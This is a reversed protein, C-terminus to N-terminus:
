VDHEILLLTKQKQLPLAQEASKLFWHEGTKKISNARLVHLPKKDKMIATEMLVKFGSDISMRVWCGEPLILGLGPPVQLDFQHVIRGKLTTSKYYEGPWFLFPMLFDFLTISLGELFPNLWESSPVSIAKGETIKAELFSKKLSLPQRYFDKELPFAELLQLAIPEPGQVLLYEKIIIPEQLSKFKLFLCAGEISPVAYMKCEWLSKSNKASLAVSAQYNKQLAQSRFIKLFDAGEEKSLIPIPATVPMPPELGGHM